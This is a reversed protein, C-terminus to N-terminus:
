VVTFFNNTTKTINVFSWSPTLLLVLVDKPALPQNTTELSKGLKTRGRPRAQAKGLPTASRTMYPIFLGSRLHQPLLHLLPSLGCWISYFHKEEQGKNKQLNTKFWTMAVKARMKMM